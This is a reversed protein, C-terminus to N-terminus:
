INRKGNQNGEPYTGKSYFTFLSSSFNERHFFSLSKSAFGMVPSSGTVEGKGLTYEVLQAVHAFHSLPMFFSRSVLRSSAVNLKSPQHEVM